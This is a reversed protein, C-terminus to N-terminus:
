GTPEGVRRLGRACRVQNAAMKRRYLEKGVAVDERSYSAPHHLHYVVARHKVSELKVGITQLRWEVDMDEGVGATLMTDRAYPDMDWYGRTVRGSIWVTGDEECAQAANAVINTLAQEMLGEDMEAKVGEVGETLFTVKV